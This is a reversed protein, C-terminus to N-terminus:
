VGNQLKLQFRYDLSNYVIYKIRDETIKNQAHVPTVPLTHYNFQSLLISSFKKPIMQSM